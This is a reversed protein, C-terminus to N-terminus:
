VRDSVVRHEMTDLDIIMARRRGASAVNFHSGDRGFQEHCHGHIHARFRHRALFNKMAVSGIKVGSRATDLVGHVPSHSVFVARDDMFTELGILDREIEDDPKEFTGGMFPLAYQYGVFSFSGCDVSRGHISQVQDFPSNLEVLDDNGMIYLVPVSARALM